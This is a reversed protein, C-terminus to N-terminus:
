LPWRLPQLTDTPRYLYLLYCVPGYMLTAEALKLKVLPTHTMQGIFVIRVKEPQDSLLRVLVPIIGLKQFAAVNAPSKSLKWIAGTAALLVEPNVEPNNVINVLPVLGGYQRILERISPDEACQLLLLLLLLLLLKVM